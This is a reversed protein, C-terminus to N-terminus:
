VKISRAARVTLPTTYPIRPVATACPNRAVIPKEIAATGPGKKSPNIVVTTDSTGPPGGSTHIGAAKHNSCWSAGPQAAKMTPQPANTILPTSLKM